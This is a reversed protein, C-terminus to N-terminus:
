RLEPRFDLVLKRNEFFQNTFRCQLIISFFKVKLYLEENIVHYEGIAFQYCQM